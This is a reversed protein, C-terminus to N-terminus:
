SPRPNEYWYVANGLSSGKPIIVDLDGDGDVDGTQMDTSFSGGSINYKTWSPYKYWFIGETFDSSSAALVDVFGDGDIDGVAKCHPNRPNNSDITRQQFSMGSSSSGGVILTATNSTTTGASNSVVCRFSSGNDSTSAPPTTYSASNAGGINAGNRQWQYSLPATGTAAVNFTASRGVTITQNSPQSTIIPASTGGGSSGATLVVDDIFYQDGSTSHSSFWFRFRADTTTGTFGSTTFQVSHTGWSTGLDFVQNMLGMSGYPSTHQHLSVSFDHGTNCYAQFTLTYQTNAELPFDTQFLQINSGATTIVIRAARSSGPGALNNDFTASSNAYFSWPSTGSEFGSNALVSAGGGGSVTLVATNSTVAGFPNSVIVRFTSANDGASVAPTTYSSSTAGSINGGNRQWQYSLPSSGSAAVSFTATEGPAVSQDSPQTTITPPTNSSGGGSTINIFNLDGIWGTTGNANLSLRLIQQGANLAIGSMVVDQFSDWSGTNPVVRPGTVDAGNMEIHFTGGSGPAAVRATITYTGAQAVNVTYELWEGAQVYGIKYGGNVDGTGLIDVGSTRYAGGQNTAELDHYAIGEGGNDFDEAEILGPIAFPVGRFPTQPDSTATVTLIANNSTAAGASNGVICRFALGNDSATAPPTTYSSSTAGNINSGNKQWQYSLPAAGNAAVSFTASQGPAVSQNAPQSAIAPASGNSGAKTLVVDDIFYQDGAVDFPAFWIRLRTDSTTGSFGSATFQVSFTQWSTGLNFTQDALGYMSYPSTHKQVSVSFDRGTNSYAAFTLTYQADEELLFETQFLQVNSGQSNITVHGSRPSSNGAADAAFAASSNSYFNWSSTGSEFGSNTILSQGLAARTMSLALVLTMLINRLRNQEM